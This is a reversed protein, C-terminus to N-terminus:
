TEIQVQLAELMPRFKLATEEWEKEPESDAVIGAGAYLWARREQAVASRIAVAFAGDLNVDIWGVPAAYWGRTVPEADRIVQVALRRPTGGMAPTPHLLEAIPLIGNAELLRARVPTYLHQINNIKYVGPQPAIELKDTLPALRELISYVVLEHEHRDKASNLLQQGLAADELPDASRRISGALAMSTLTRGEVKALLEPTAGYFAHFPRPEFLFRYCDNYHANLYTLAGDVDVRDPFRLEAVRALVAKKLPTTRIQHRIDNIKEAWTDYPMPYHIFPHAPPRGETAPTFPHVLIGGEGRRGKVGENKLVAYRAALAEKLIPLSAAPEEDPPILTNITLWSDGGVQVLQYHPLIFHAPHFAAWTNDPTFDDRFAFGGFLRPTALPNTENLLIVNAFLAKTQEQISQFRGDGWAFLNVATGFGAFIIRDRVDEWFFRERGRAQALFNAATIGPAPQSYSILRSSQHNIISSQANGWDEIKLRQDNNM